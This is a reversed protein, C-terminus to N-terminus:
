VSSCSNVSHGNNTNPAEVISDVSGAVVTQYNTPEDRLLPSKEVNTMIEEKFKKRRCRFRQMCSGMFAIKTWRRYVFANLLAQLPNLVAM